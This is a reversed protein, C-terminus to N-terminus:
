KARTGTHHGHHAPQLLSPFPHLFAKRRAPATGSSCGSCASTASSTTPSASPTRKTPTSSSTSSRPQRRKSPSPHRSPTTSSSLSAAQKTLVAEFADTRIFAEGNNGLRLFWGTKQINTSIDILTTTWSLGYADKLEELFIQVAQGNPTNMTLLHLGKANKVEPPTDDDYISAAMVTKAQGREHQYEKRRLGFRELFSTEPNSDFKFSSNNRRPALSTSSPNFLLAQGHHLRPPAISLKTLPRGLRGLM